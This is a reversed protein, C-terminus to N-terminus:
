KAHLSFPEHLGLLSPGAQKTASSAIKAVLQADATLAHLLTNVFELIHILSPM